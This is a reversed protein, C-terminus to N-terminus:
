ITSLKRRKSANKRHVLKVNIGIIAIDNHRKPALTLVTLTISHALSKELQTQPGM